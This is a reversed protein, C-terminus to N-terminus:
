IKMTILSPHVWHGPAADYSKTVKFVYLLVSDLGIIFHSALGNHMIVCTDRVFRRKFKATLVRSGDM